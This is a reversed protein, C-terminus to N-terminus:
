ERVLQSCGYSAKIVADAHHYGSCALARILKWWWGKRNSKGSKKGGGGSSRLSRSKKNQRKRVERMEMETPVRAMGFFFLFWKSKTTSKLITIRQGLIDNKNGCSGHRSICQKSSHLSNFSSSYPISSANKNICKGKRGKSKSTKSKLNWKLVGHKTRKRQKNSKVKLSNDVNQKYPILKGCFLINDAPNYSTTTTIWEETFFEFHDVLQGDSSSSSSNQDELSYNDPEGYIPLDCLSLTEDEEDSDHMIMPNFNQEM